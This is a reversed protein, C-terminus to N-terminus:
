VGEIYSNRAEVATIALTQSGKGRQVELKLPQGINQKLAEVLAPVKAETKESGFGAVSVHLSTHVCLSKVQGKELIKLNSKLIGHELVSDNTGEQRSRKVSM